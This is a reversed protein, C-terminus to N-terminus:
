LIKKIKDNRKYTSPINDFLEKNKRENFIKKIKLFIYNLKRNSINTCKIVKTKYFISITKYYANKELNYDGLRCNGDDYWNIDVLTLDLKFLNKVIENNINKQKKLIHTLIYYSKDLFNLTYNIKDWNNNKNRVSFNIIYYYKIKSISISIDSKSFSFINGSNSIESINNKLISLIIKIVEKNKM